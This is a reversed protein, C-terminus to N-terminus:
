TVDNRFTGKSSNTKSVYSVSLSVFATMKQDKLCQRNLCYSRWFALCSGAWHSLMVDWLISFKWCCHQSFRLGWLSKPFRTLDRNYYHPTEAWRPSSGERHHARTSLRAIERIHLIKLCFDMWRRIISAWWTVIKLCNLSPFALSLCVSDLSLCARPCFFAYNFSM